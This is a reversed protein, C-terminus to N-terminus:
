KSPGDVGYEKLGPDYHGSNYTCRKDKLFPLVDLGIFKSLDGATEKRLGASATIAGSVGIGGCSYCISVVIEEKGKRAIIYHHPCFCAAVDDVKDPITKLIKVLDGRSAPKVDKVMHHGKPDFKNLTALIDAPPNKYEFGDYTTAVAEVKDATQIFNFVPNWEPGYVNPERPKSLSLVIFAVLMLTVNIFVANRRTEPKM